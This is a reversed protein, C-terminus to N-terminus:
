TVDIVERGCRPCTLTWMVGASLIAVETVLLIPHGRCGWCALPPPPRYAAVGQEVWPVPETISSM